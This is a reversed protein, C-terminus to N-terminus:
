MFGCIRMDDTAKQRILILLFKLFFMRQKSLNCGEDKTSVRWQIALSTCELRLTNVLYSKVLYSKLIHDIM